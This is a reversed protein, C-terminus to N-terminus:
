KLCFIHFIEARNQLVEKMDWVNKKKIVSGFKSKNRHIFFLPETETLLTVKFKLLETTAKHVALFEVKQGCEKHKARNQRCFAIIESYLM